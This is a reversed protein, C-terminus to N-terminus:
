NYCWSTAYLVTISMIFGKVDVDSKRSMDRYKNSATTLTCFSTRKVGDSKTKIGSTRRIAVLVVYIFVATLYHIYKPRRSSQVSLTVDKKLWDTETKIGSSRYSATLFSKSSCLLLTVCESLVGHLTYLRLSM